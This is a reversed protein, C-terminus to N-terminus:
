EKIKKRNVAIIKKTMDHALKFFNNMDKKLKFNNSLLPVPITKDIISINAFMNTQENRVKILESATFYSTLKIEESGSNEFLVKKLCEEFISPQKKIYNMNEFEFTKAMRMIDKATLPIEFSYYCLLFLNDSFSYEYDKDLSKIFELALDGRQHLMSTLILANASYSQFSKNSHADRLKLIVGFAEEFKGYLLHRELGYYLVFVFGINISSDYPNSLLKLYVWKQEPTLQTYTPWYSPREVESLDSPICIKQKTYVLSPEESQMTITFRIHGIVFSDENHTDQIYNKYKGDGIWILGKLDNHIRLIPDDLDNHVKVIETSQIDPDTSKHFLNFISM